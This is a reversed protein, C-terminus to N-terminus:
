CTNRVISLSEFEYFEDEVYHLKDKGPEKGSNYQKMITYQRGQGNKGVSLPCRDVSM